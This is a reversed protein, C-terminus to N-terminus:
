PQASVFNTYGERLGVKVNHVLPTFGSGREEEVQEVIFAPQAM